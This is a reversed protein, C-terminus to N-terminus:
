SQPRRQGSCRVLLLVSWCMGDLPLASALPMCSPPASFVMVDSFVRRKAVAADKGVALVAVECQCQRSM